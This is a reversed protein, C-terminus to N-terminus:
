IELNTMEAMPSFRPAETETQMVAVAAETSEVARLTVDGFDARGSAARLIQRRFCRLHPFKWPFFPSFGFDQSKSPSNTHSKWEL